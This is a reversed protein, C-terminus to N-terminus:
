GEVRSPPAIWRGASEIGTRRREHIEVVVTRPLGERAPDLVHDRGTFNGLFAHLRRVALRRFVGVRHPRRVAAILDATRELRRGLHEIAADVPFAREDVLFRGVDEGIQRRRDEVPRVVDRGREIRRAGCGLVDDGGAIRGVDHRRADRDARCRLGHPSIIRVREPFHRLALPLLPEVRRVVGVHTASAGVVVRLSAREGVDARVHGGKGRGAIDLLRQDRNRARHIRQQRDVVM